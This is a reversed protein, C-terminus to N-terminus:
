NSNDRGDRAGPASGTKTRLLPALLIASLNGATSTEPIKDDYIIPNFAEQANPRANAAPATTALKPGPILLIFALFFMVYFVSCKTWTESPNPKFNNKTFGFENPKLREALNLSGHL